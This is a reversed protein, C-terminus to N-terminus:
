TLAWPVPVGSLSRDSVCAMSATKPSWARLSAMLEVLDIVPWMIPAAPANSPQTQTFTRSVPQIGGM